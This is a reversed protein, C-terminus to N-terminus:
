TRHVSLRVSLRDGPNRDCLGCVLLTVTAAAVAANRTLGDGRRDLGRRRKPRGPSGTDPEEHEEAMEADQEDDMGQFLELFAADDDIDDM